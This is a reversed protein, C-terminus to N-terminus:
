APAPPAFRHRAEPYVASVDDKTGVAAIKGDRVAVAEARPQTDNITGNTYITDAAEQAFASGSIVMAVVISGLECAIKSNM